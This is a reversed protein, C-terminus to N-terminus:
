AREFRGGGVEQCVGGVQLPRLVPRLPAGAKNRM